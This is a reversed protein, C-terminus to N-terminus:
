GAATDLVASHSNKKWVLTSGFPRRGNIAPIQRSRSFSGRYEKGFQSWRRWPRSSLTATPEISMYISLAPVIRSQSQLPWKSLYGFKFITETSLPILQIGDTM